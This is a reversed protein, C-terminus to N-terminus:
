KEPDKGDNNPNQEPVDYPNEDPNFSTMKLEFAPFQFSRTDKNDDTGDLNLWRCVLIPSVEYKALRKPLFLDGNFQASTRRHNLTVPNHYDSKTFVVASDTKSKPPPAAGPLTSIFDDGVPGPEETETKEETKHDHDQTYGKLKWLIPGVMISSDPTEYMSDVSVNLRYRYCTNIHKSRDKCSTFVDYPYIFFEALCAMDNFYFRQTYSESQIDYCQKWNDLNEELPKMKEDFFLELYKGEPQKGFNVKEVDEHNVVDFGEMPIRVINRKGEDGDSEYFSGDHHAMLVTLYKHIHARNTNASNQLMLALYMDTKKEDVKSTESKYAANSTPKKEELYTSKSEFPYLVVGRYGLVKHHYIDGTKLTPTTASSHRVLLRQFQQNLRLRRM